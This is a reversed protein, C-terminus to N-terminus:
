KKSVTFYEPIGSFLWIKKPNTKASPFLCNPLCLSNKDVTFEDPFLKNVWYTLYEEDHNKVYYLYRVFKPKKRLTKFNLTM